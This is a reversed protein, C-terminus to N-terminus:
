ETPADPRKEADNYALNIAKVLKGGAAKKLRVAIGQAGAMQLSVAIQQYLEQKTPLKGVAVVGKPDLSSGEFVGGKIPSKDDLKFEKVWNAYADLTGRMDEEGVFFWMNEKTTVDVATAWDTGDVARRMLTNKVVMAKSNEPLRNRLNSMIKVSLGVSPVSFILNSSDLLDNVQAVKAQPFVNNKNFFFGM